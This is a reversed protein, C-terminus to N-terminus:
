GHFVGDFDDNIPWDADDQLQKFISLGAGAPL